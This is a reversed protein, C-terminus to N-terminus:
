RMRRIKEKYVRERGRQRKRAKKERERKKEKEREREREGLLQQTDATSDPGATGRRDRTDDHRYTSAHLVAAAAIAAAALPCHTDNLPATDSTKRLGGHGCEEALRKVEPPDM